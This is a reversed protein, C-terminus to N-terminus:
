ETFIIKGIKKKCLTRFPVDASILRHGGPPPPYELKKRMSPGLM